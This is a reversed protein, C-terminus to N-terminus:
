YWDLRNILDPIDACLEDAMNHMLEPEGYPDPGMLILLPKGAGVFYGAEIHASRGCPLVLVGADAAQMADFDSQFGAEAIPHQLAEMHQLLSWDQWQGLCLQEWSFGSRNPPNRFDYVEHGAERLM